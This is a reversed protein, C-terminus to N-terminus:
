EYPTKRWANTFWAFNSDFLSNQMRIKLTSIRTYIRALPLQRLRTLAFAVLIRVVAVPALTRISEAALVTM